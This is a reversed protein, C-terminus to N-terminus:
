NAIVAMELHAQALGARCRAPPSLETAAAAATSARTLEHRTEISYSRVTYAPGNGAEVAQADSLHGAVLVGAWMVSLAATAGTTLTAWRHTM